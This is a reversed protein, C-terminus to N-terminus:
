QVTDLEIVVIGFNGTTCSAYWAQQVLTGWDRFTFQQPPMANTILLGSSIQINQYTTLGFFVSTPGASEAVGVIFGWRLPNAQLIQTPAPGSSLSFQTEKATFQGLMGMLQQSIRDSM